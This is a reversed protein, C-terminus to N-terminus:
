QTHTTIQVNTRQYTQCHRQTNKHIYTQRDKQRKRERDTKVYIQENIDTQRSIYRNEIKTQTGTKKDRM